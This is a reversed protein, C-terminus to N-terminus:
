SWLYLFYYIAVVSHIHITIKEGENPNPFLNLARVAAADLRMFLSLDFSKLTYQNFSSTDALLQFKSLMKTFM